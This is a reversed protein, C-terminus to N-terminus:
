KKFWALVCLFASSAMKNKGPLQIWIALSVRPGIRIKPVSKLALDRLRKPFAIAPIVDCPWTRNELIQFVIIDNWLLSILLVLRKSLAWTARVCLWHFLPFTLFIVLTQLRCCPSRSLGLNYGEHYAGKLTARLCFIWGFRSCGELRRRPSLFCALVASAARVAVGPALLEMPFPNTVLILRPNGSVCCQVEVTQNCVFRNWDCWHKRRKRVGGLYCHEAFCYHPLWFSLSFQNGTLLFSIAPNGPEKM